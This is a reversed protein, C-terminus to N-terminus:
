APSVVLNTQVIANTARTGSIVPWVYWRYDGPALTHSEGAYTWHAPVSITAVRSEGAFVRDSGRYLEVHYGEANKVPAWAFRRAVGSASGRVPDAPRLTSEEASTAGAHDPAGAVTDPEGGGGLVGAMAIAVVAIVVSTVGVIAFRRSRGHTREFVREVASTLSELSAPVSREARTETNWTL